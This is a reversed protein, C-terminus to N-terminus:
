RRVTAPESVEELVDGMRGKDTTETALDALAVIGVLRMNANLVLLRRVQNDRMKRAAADIDDDEFCFILDETMVDRVRTTGPDRGEATARVTIDRDTLMGVLRDDGCVPMPGVDLDRMKRAADQITDDPAVCAVSATMIDRVPM